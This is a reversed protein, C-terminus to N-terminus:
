WRVPLAHLGCLVGDYKYPLEEAPVALRLGPIREFLRRYAIEMEVRVLNQGLCQHVGYGFAVHHRETRAPDFAHPCAFAREDHNAAAVLAVIGEGARVQQGAIEVDEVAVRLSVLDAVSHFRLTEEVVRPDGIWEPHALLTVVGLAINNATTEHGAILLLMLVGSMERPDIAGTALLRSILDDGPWKQKIAVLRNIYRLLERSATDRQQDTSSRIAVLTRTRSEFFDRDAPPVGLLASIVLSPVPLAFDAVLDAETGAALLGDICRDVTQEVAPRLERVRRVTFEPILAKRFRDHEPSDLGVFWGPIQEQRPVGMTQSINPFGPHDPNSSIRRDTLVARVDEHRTVLWVRNGNPLHCVVLGREGRYDQYHPPPFAEGPRRLPFDVVRPGTSTM